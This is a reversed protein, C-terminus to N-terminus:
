PKRDRRSSVLLMAAFAAIVVVPLAILGIRLLDSM